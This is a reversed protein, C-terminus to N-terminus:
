ALGNEIGNNRETISPDMDMQRDEKDYATKFDEIADHYMKLSYKSMGRRYYGEPLEPDHTVAETFDDIAM